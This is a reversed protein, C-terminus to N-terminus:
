RSIIKVVRGANSSSNRIRRGRTIVGGAGPSDCAAISQDARRHSGRETLLNGIVALMVIAGGVFSVFPPMEGFALWVWVCAVPVELASILAARTASVLRTGM